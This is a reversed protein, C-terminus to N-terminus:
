AELDSDHQLVRLEAMEQPGDPQVGLVQKRVDEMSLLQTWLLTQWLM